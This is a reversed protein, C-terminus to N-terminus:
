LYRQEMWDIHDEIAALARRFMLLGPNNIAHKASTANAILASTYLAPLLFQRYDDFCQDATYGSVGSEKLMNCYTTVLHAEWAGRHPPAVSTSLFHAIDYGPPGFSYDGWDFFTVQRNDQSFCINDLRLDAHILTLPGSVYQAALDHIRDGYSKLLQSTRKTLDEDMKELRLLLLVNPLLNTMDQAALTFTEYFPPAAVTNDQWFRAHLAALATIVTVCQEYGATQDTPIHQQNELDELLLFFARRSHEGFFM